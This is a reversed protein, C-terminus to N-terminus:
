GKVVEYLGDRWLLARGDATVVWAAVQRHRRILALSRGPAHAVAWGDEHWGEGAGRVRSPALGALEALLRADAAANEAASAARGDPNWATVVLTEGAGPTWPQWGGGAPALLRTGRWLERWRAREGADVVRGPDDAVRANICAGGGRGDGM